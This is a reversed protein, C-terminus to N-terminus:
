VNSHALEVKNAILKAVAQKVGEALAPDVKAYNELFREQVVTSADKLMGATNEILRAKEDDKLVSLDTRRTYRRHVRPPQAAHTANGLAGRRRWLERPQVFDDDTNPAHRNVEGHLNYVHEVRDKHEVHGNFSDPFYSPANGQSDITMLGDRQTNQPRARYPCNIPIQKHNPGLRHYQTDVYSLIRGQLM